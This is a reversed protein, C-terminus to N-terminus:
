GDTKGESAPSLLARAAYDEWATECDKVWAVFEGETTPGVSSWFGADFVNRRDAELAAIRKEAEALAREAAIQERKWWELGASLNGARVEAEALRAELDAIRDALQRATDISVPISTHGTRAAAEIDRRMKATDGIRVEGTDKAPPTPAVVYAKGMGDGLDVAKFPAFREDGGVPAPSLKAIEDRAVARALAEAYNASADARAKEAAIVAAADAYRVWEGHVMEIPASFAWSYRTLGLMGADLADDTM